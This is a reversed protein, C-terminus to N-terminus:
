RGRAASRGSRATSRIRTEERSGVSCVAVAATAVSAGRDAPGISEVAAGVGEGFLWAGGAAGATGCCAPRKARWAEIAKPRLAASAVRGSLNRFLRRRPGRMGNACHRADGAIAISMPRTDAALEDGGYTDFRTVVPAYLMPTRLRSTARVPHARGARVKGRCERWIAEIRARQKEGRTWRSTARRVRLNMPWGYLAGRPLGFADRNGRQAGPGPARAGAALTPKRCSTPSINLSRLRKGSSGAM